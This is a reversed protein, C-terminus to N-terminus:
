VRNDFDMFRRGYGDVTPNVGFGLGNLRATGDAHDYGKDFGAVTGALVDLLNFVYFGAADAGNSFAVGAGTRYPSIGLCNQDVYRNIPRFTNAM